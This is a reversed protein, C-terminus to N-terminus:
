ICIYKSLNYCRDLLLNNIQINPNGVINMYEVNM